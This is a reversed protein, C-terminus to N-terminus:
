YMCSALLTINEGYDAIFRGKTLKVKKTKARGPKIRQRKIWAESTAERDSSSSSTVSLASSLRSSPDGFGGIFDSDGSTKVRRRPEPVSLFSAAPVIDGNGFDGYKEDNLTSSSDNPFNTVNNGSAARGNGFNRSSHVSRTATAPPTGNHSISDFPALSRDDEPIYLSENMTSSRAPDQAQFHPHTNSRMLNTASLYNSYEHFPLRATSIDNDIDRESDAHYLDYNYSLGTYDNKNISYNSSARKRYSFRGSAVTSQTRNRHLRSPAIDEEM